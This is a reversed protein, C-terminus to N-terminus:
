KLEELPPLEVFADGIPLIYLFYKRVKAKWKGEVDQISILKQSFPFDSGGEIKQYYVRYDPNNRVAMGDFILSKSLLVLFVLLTAVILMKEMKRSTIKEEANMERKQNGEAAVSNRHNANKATNKKKKAM